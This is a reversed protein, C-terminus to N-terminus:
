INSAKMDGGGRVFLGEQEGVQQAGPLTKLAATFIPM